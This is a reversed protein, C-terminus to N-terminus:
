SSIYVLSIQFYYNSPHAEPNVPERFGPLVFSERIIKKKGQIINLDESLGILLFIPFSIQMIPFLNGFIAVYEYSLSQM